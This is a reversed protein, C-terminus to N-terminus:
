REGGDSGVLQSHGANTTAPTNATHSPATLTKATGAHFSGAGRAMPASSTSLRPRKRRWVQVVSCSIRTPKPTASNAPTVSAPSM